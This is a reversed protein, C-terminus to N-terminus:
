GDRLYVGEDEHCQVHDFSGAAHAHVDFVDRGIDELSLHLYSGDVEMFGSM